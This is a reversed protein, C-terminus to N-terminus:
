LKRWLRNYCVRRGPFPLFCMRRACEVPNKCFCVFFDGFGSQRRSRPFKLNDRPGSKWFLSGSKTRATCNTKVATSPSRRSSTKESRWMLRPARIYRRKEHEALAARRLAAGGAPTKRRSSHRKRGDDM